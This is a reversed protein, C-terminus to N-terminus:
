GLFININGIPDIILMKNKGNTSKYGLVFQNFCYFENKIMLMEAYKEDVQGTVTTNRKKAFLIPGAYGELPEQIFQKVEQSAYGNIIEFKGTEIILKVIIRKEINDTPFKFNSIWSLSKLKSQDIDGFHHDGDDGFQDLFTGDKYEARWEFESNSRNFKALYPNFSEPVIIEGTESNGILLGMEELEKSACSFAFLGDQRTQLLRDIKQNKTEM